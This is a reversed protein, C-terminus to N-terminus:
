DIQLSYTGPKPPWTVLNQLEADYSAVKRVSVNRLASSFTYDGALPANPYIVVHRATTTEATSWSTYYYSSELNTPKHRLTLSFAPADSGEVM